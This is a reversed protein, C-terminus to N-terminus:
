HTTPADSGWGERRGTPLHGMRGYQKLSAESLPARPRGRALATSPSPAEEQGLLSAGPPPVGKGRAPVQWGPVPCPTSLHCSAVLLSLGAPLNQCVSLWPSTPPQARLQSGPQAGHRSCLGPGTLGSCPQATHGPSLAPRSASLKSVVPTPDPRAEHGRQSSHPGYPFRSPAQAIAPQTTKLSVKTASSNSKLGSGPCLESKQSAPSPPQPLVPLGGSPFM